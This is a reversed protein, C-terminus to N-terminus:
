FGDTEKGRYSGDGIGKGKVSSKQSFTVRQLFLFYFYIWNHHNFQCEVSSILCIKGTHLTKLRHNKVLKTHLAVTSINYNLWEQLNDVILLTGSQWGVSPIPNIFQLFRLCFRFFTKRMSSPQDSIQLCTLADLSKTM